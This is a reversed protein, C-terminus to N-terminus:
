TASTRDPPNRPLCVEFEAGPGECPRVVISGGHAEVLTKTLALGLGTGKIGTATASTARYLYDFVLPLEDEPIGIGTDCVRLRAGDEVEDLVM